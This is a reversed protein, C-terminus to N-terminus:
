TPYISFIDQWTGFHDAGYSTMGCAKVARVKSLVIMSVYHVNSM